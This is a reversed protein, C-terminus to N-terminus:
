RPDTPHPAIGVRLASVTNHDTDFRYATLKTWPGGDYRWLTLGQVQGQWPAYATQLEDLLHRAAAPLVKNQVTVHPKFTQRDQPTLWHQWATALTARLATIAPMHLDYAVGRGLFRLGRTQFPAPAHPRCATHLTHTVSDREEGPLAHFLTVHASLYNIAPPFYRQRENDFRAQSVADLTATVILAGTM